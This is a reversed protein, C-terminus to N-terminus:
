AFFDASKQKEVFAYTTLWDPLQAGHSAIAQTQPVHIHPDIFGPTVLHPRYDAVPKSDEIYRLAKEGSVGPDDAFWLLRGRIVKQPRLTEIASM